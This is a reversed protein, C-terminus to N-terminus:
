CFNFLPSRWSHITRVNLLLAGARRKRLKLKAWLYRVCYALTFMAKPHAMLLKWIKIRKWWRMLKIGAYTRSALKAVLKKRNRDALIRELTKNSRFLFIWYMVKMMVFTAKQRVRRERMTQTKDHRQERDLARRIIEDEKEQAMKKRLELVKLLKNDKEVVAGAGWASSRARPMNSASVPRKAKIGLVNSVSLTVSMNKPDIMPPSSETSNNFEPLSKVYNAFTGAYPTGSDAAIERVMGATKPRVRGSPIGSGGDNNSNGNNNSRVSASNIDIDVVFKKTTSEIKYEDTPSPSRSALKGSATEDRNLLRRNAALKVLMTAQLNSRDNGDRDPKGEDEPTEEGNIRNKRLMDITFAIHEERQRVELRRQQEVRIYEQRKRHLEEQEEKIDQLLGVFM